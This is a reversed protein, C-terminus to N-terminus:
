DLGVHRLLRVGMARDIDGEIAQGQAAERSHIRWDICRRREHSFPIPDFFGDLLVTGVIGVVQVVGIAPEEYGVIGFASHDCELELPDNKRIFVVRLGSVCRELNGEILLVNRPEFLVHHFPEGLSKKMRNASLEITVNADTVRLSGSLSKQLEFLSEFMGTSKQAHM